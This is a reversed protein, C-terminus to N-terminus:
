QAALVEQLGAVSLLGARRFEGARLIQREGIKDNKSENMHLPMFELNAIVIDLNRLLEDRTLQAACANTYDALKIARELTNTPNQEANTATALGYVSKQVRPNAGRSGLTALKAPQILENIVVASKDQATTHHVPTSAASSAVLGAVLLFVLTASHLKM